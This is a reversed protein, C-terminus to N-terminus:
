TEIPKKNFYVLVAGALMLVVGWWINARMGVSRVIHHVPMYLYYIGACVVIFGIILLIWGVFYWIPKMQEKDNNM